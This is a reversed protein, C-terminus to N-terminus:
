FYVTLKTFYRQKAHATFTLFKPFHIAFPSMWQQTQRFGCSFNDKVPNM